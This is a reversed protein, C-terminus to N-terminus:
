VEDLASLAAQLRGAAEDLLAVRASLESPPNALREALEADPDSRGVQDENM